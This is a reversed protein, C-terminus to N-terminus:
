SAHHRVPAQRKGTVYGALEDYESPLRASDLGAIAARGMAFVAEETSGGIHPTTFFNPLDMLRREIPPEIGFVDFAAGALRGTELMEALAVEDVLNGRATNILVASSGLLALRRRDVLNRTTADLPVHLTVIDARALLEDLAVAEVSHERYFEPYDRVDHVLLRCDFPRLMRVVSKGVHGCGIVGVTSGTLQRGQVQRWEGNRVVAMAEGLRHRLMIAFAITLEAVSRCNTGPTWGLRIGRREMAELDLMDLGVGYKSIVRLQPLTALLSDDITELATIARDHGALFESLEGPGFARGSDNFTVQPYKALLEDRLVAHRSFSRSTVAIATV